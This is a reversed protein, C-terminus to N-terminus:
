LSLILRRVKLADHFLVSDPVLGDEELERYLTTVRAASGKEPNINCLIMASYLKLNPPEGKEKILYAALLEVEELSGRAAHRRLITYLERVPIIPKSSVNSPAGSGSELVGEHEEASRQTPGLRNIGEVASHQYIARQRSKKEGPPTKETIYSIIHKVDGRLDTTPATSPATANAKEQLVTLASYVPM